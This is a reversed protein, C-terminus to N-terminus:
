HMNVCSVMVTTKSGMHNAIASWDSGLARLLAPFETIESVSWYSSAQNQARREAQPQTTPQVFNLTSVVPQPPPIPEPRLQPPALASPPAMLDSMTSTQMGPRDGPSLVAQQAPALTPAQIGTPQEYTTPLRPAEAAGTPIPTDANLARSNSRSRGRGAVPTTGASQGGRSKPEKDKAAKRRGKRGDVKEPQNEKVGGNGRRGTAGPTLGDSDNQQESSGFTPAAARRPRRREGGEAADQNEETENEGNGLESVLASSRQKGRSGKKRRKPQKKLKEKLNLDKKKLYYYQICARFDRNSISEAVPGWQKPRELYSKEFAASEAETFNSIPPLCQWAYALADVPTYGTTDFFLDEKIEEDNWYMPPIIAEKESRYKEQQLLIERQRRDEDEKMSAQLVRELDRETAFRRGGSRSESKSEPAAAASTTTEAPGYVKERHKMAVPDSSLTFDLYNRYNQLYTQRADQQETEKELSISDLQNLIFSDVASNSELTELFKTDQEWPKCYFDPLSDIPPTKMIERISDGLMLAVDDSETEDGDDEEQSPPTPLQSGPSAGNSLAPALPPEGMVRRIQEQLSPDNEPLLPAAPVDSMPIDEMGDQTERKSVTNPSPETADVDMSETELKPASPVPIGVTSDPENPAAVPIVKPKAADSEVAEPADGGAEKQQEVLRSPPRMLLAQEVGAPIPGLASLFGENESLIKLCIDHSLHGFRNVIDWPADKKELDRLNNGVKALENVFYDGIDEDDDSDGSEATPLANKPPLQFQVAPVNLSPREVKPAQPQTEQFTGASSPEQRTKVDEDKSLVRKASPPPTSVIEGDDLDDDDPPHGQDRSMAAPSTERGLKPASEPPVSRREPQTPRNISGPQFDSKAGSSRPRKEDDPPHESGFSERRSFPRHQVFSQSRMTKPSEPVKRGTMNPNIWQKSSPRQQARPGVPIPPAGEVPPKGHSPVSPQPESGGGHGSSGPREAFARPATPPPKGPASLPPNESANAPRTPVTGFAPASPAIPPPSVDKTVPPHEHPLSSRDAKPRFAERDRMDRDDRDRRLDPDPFRDGRDRDDRDRM